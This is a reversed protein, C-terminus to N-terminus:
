LSDPNRAFVTAGEPLAVWKQASDGWFHVHPDLWDTDDFAGGKIIVFDPAAPIHSVVPSGCNPCFSRLVAGGREGHDEYTRLEGTVSVQARAAGVIISFSTGTQRQCNKCHCVAQMAPAGALAFRVKGCLCGGEQVTM